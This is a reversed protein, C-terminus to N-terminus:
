RDVGGRRGLVTGRLRRGVPAPAGAAPVGPRPLHSGEPAQWAGGCARDPPAGSRATRTTRGTVLPDAAQGEDAREQQPFRADMRIELLSRESELFRENCGSLFCAAVVTLLERRDTAKQIWDSVTIHAETDFEAAAEALDGRKRLRRLFRAVTAMRWDDPVAALVAPLEPAPDVDALHAGIVHELAPRALATVPLGCTSIAGANTSMTMVLYADVAKVRHEVQRWLFESDVAPPEGIRDVVLYARGRDYTREALEKLTAVPSLVVVPGATVGRLLALATTERGSGPTGSLGVIHRAVLEVRAAPYCTPQVFWRLADDIEVEDLVGTVRRPSSSGLGSIGVSGSVTDYFNFVASGIREATMADQVDSKERPTDPRPDKKQDPRAEETDSSESSM